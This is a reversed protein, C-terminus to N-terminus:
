SEGIEKGGVRTLWDKIQLKQHKIDRVENEEHPTLIARRSLEQLRKELIQHQNKLKEIHYPDAVSPFESTEPSFGSKSM